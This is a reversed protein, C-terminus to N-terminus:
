NEPISSWAMSSEGNHFTVPAFMKTEGTRTNVRFVAKLTVTSNDKLTETYEGALLQFRDQNLEISQGKIIVFITLAIALFIGITSLWRAIYSNM